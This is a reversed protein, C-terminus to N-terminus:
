QEHRTLEKVITEVIDLNTERAVVANGKASQIKAIEKDQLPTTENAGAKCEIALFKGNACCIIDPVGSRGYGNMAAFFYYVDHRRLIKVVEAKVKGEPSLAM